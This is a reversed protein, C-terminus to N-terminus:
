RSRPFKETWDKNPFRSAKFAREKEGKGLDEGKSIVNNITIPKRGACRKKGQVGNEKPSDGSTYEEGTREGWSPSERGEILTMEGESGKWRGRKKESRREM